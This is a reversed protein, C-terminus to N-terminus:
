KVALYLSAFFTIKAQGDQEYDLLIDLLENKQQESLVTGYHSRLTYIFAEQAIAVTEFYYPFAEKAIVRLNSGFSERIPAEYFLEPVISQSEKLFHAVIRDYDGDSHIGIVAATGGPKLIRHAEQMTAQRDKVMHLVWPYLAIDVSDSDIELAQADMVAFSINTLKSDGLRMRASEILRADLDVGLIERCHTSLAFTVRGDGCGVEIVKSDEIPLCRQFLAIEHDDWNHHWLQWYYIDDKVLGQFDFLGRNKHFTIQM